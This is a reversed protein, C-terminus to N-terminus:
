ESTHKQWVSNLIECFHKGFDKTDFLPSNLAKQRLSRRISSLNNIDDSLSIAKNIYDEKNEAIFEPMQLNLNISEGCRSLLNNGRLTIVPVGMWISEISTTVGPYPFTDM